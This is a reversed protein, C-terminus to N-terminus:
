LGGDFGGRRLGGTSTGSCGGTGWAWTETWGRTGCIYTTTRLLTSGTCPAPRRPRRRPYASPAQYRVTRSNSGQCLISLAGIPCVPEFKRLWAPIPHQNACLRPNLTSNLHLGTWCFRGPTASNRAGSGALHRKRHGCRLAHAAHRHGQTHHRAADDLRASVSNGSWSRSSRPGLSRRKKRAVQAPNIAPRATASIQQFM